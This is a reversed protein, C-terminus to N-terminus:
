LKSQPSMRIVMGHDVCDPFVRRFQWEPVAPVCSEPRGLPRNHIPLLPVFFSRIAGHRTTFTTLLTLSSADVSYGELCDEVNMQFNFRATRDRLQTIPRTDSTEERKHLILSKAFDHFFLIVACTRGILTELSVTEVPKTLIACQLQRLRIFRLM